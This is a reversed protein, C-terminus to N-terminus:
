SYFLFSRIYLETVTLFGASMNVFLKVNRGLVRFSNINLVCVSASQGHCSTSAPNRIISFATLAYKVLIVMMM